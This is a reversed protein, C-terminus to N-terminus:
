GDPFTSLIYRIGAAAAAAVVSMDALLLANLVLGAPEPLYIGRVGLQDFQSM